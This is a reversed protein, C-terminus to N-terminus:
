HKGEGSSEPEVGTVSIQVEEEAAEEPVSEEPLTFCAAQLFRQLAALVQPYLAIASVNRDEEPIELLQTVSERLAEAVHTRGRVAAYYSWLLQETIEELPSDVYVSIWAAQMLMWELDEQQVTIDHLGEQVRRQELIPDLRLAAHRQLVQFEAPWMHEICDEASLFLEKLEAAVPDEEKIDAHYGAIHFHEYKYGFEEPNHIETGSGLVAPHEEELSESPQQGVRDEETTQGVQEGAEGDEASSEGSSVWSSVLAKVQDDITTALKDSNQQDLVTAAFTKLGQTWSQRKIQGRM